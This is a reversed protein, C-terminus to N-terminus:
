AILAVVPTAVLRESLLQAGPDGTELGLVTVGRSATTSMGTSRTLRLGGLVLLARDRRGALTAAPTAALLSRLEATVIPSKQEPATGLTRRIGRM